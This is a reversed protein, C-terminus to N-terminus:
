EETGVQRLTKDLMALDDMTLQFANRNFYAKITGKLSIPPIVNGVRNAQLTLNHEELQLNRETLEEIRRELEENKYRMTANQVRLNAAATSFEDRQQEARNARDQARDLMENKTTLETRLM